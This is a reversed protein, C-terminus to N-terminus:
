KLSLFFFMFSSFYYCYIYKKLHQLFTCCRQSPPRCSAPFRIREMSSCAMRMTVEETRSPRVYITPFRNIIANLFIKKRRATKEKKRYDVIWHGDDPKSLPLLDMVVRSAFLISLLWWNFFSAESLGLVVNVLIPRRVQSALDNSITMGTKTATTSMRISPFQILPGTKRERKNQFFLVLFIFYLFGKQFIPFFIYMVFNLSHFFIVVEVSSQSQNSLPCVDIDVDDLLVIVYEALIQIKLRSLDALTKKELNIKCQLIWWFM